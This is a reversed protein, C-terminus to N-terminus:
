LIFNFENAPRIFDTIQGRGVDLIKGLGGMSPAKLMSVREIEEFCVTPVDNKQRQDISNERGLM